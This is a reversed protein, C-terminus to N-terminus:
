YNRKERIKSLYDAVIEREDMHHKEHGVIQYDEHGKGALLIVDGSAANDIAWHIAEIRDSIVVVKSSSSKTGVLIESIIADPDETRPNDSTVIVIDANDCAVKGMIPRKARDRDGGCGFLVVLRGSTVPRLTKLVKELADPKHSYDILVTYDSDVPVSEVRGKVGEANSLADACKKLPIGVALCVSVATLANYVSFLGPIALRILEKENGFSAYFEVGKADMHIDTATLSADTMDVSTTIVRCGNKKASSLMVPAYLDDINICANRCMSFLISKADAYADMTRHFDLHDQSLNTFAAVDYRIGAVRDLSLSHSSVEMVVHTCGKDVMDSFLKQLEYSEPTTHETHIMENGILNGNTGILGTKTEPVSELIHRILHTSTTKGSTGTVGIVKMKESPYDFFAASVLALSLRSNEVLIYPIDPDAPKIECIVASAGLRCASSIYKHGDSEFGRIAVFLNGAVTKRSDYCVGTIEVNFDCNSEIINLKETLVSLKM